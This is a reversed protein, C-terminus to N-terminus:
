AQLGEIVGDGDAGAPVDGPFLRGGGYVGGAAAPSESLDNQSNQRWFEIDVNVDREPSSEAAEAEALAQALKQKQAVSINTLSVASILVVVGAFFISLSV